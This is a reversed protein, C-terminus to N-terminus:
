YLYLQDGLHDVTLGFFETTKWRKFTTLWLTAYRSYLHRSADCSICWTQPSFLWRPLKPAVIGSGENVCRALIQKSTPSCRTCLSHARGQKTLVFSDFSSLSSKFLHCFSHAGDVVLVVCTLHHCWTSNHSLLKSWLVSCHNCINCFVANTMLKVFVACVHLQMVNCCHVSAPSCSFMFPVCMSQSLIIM